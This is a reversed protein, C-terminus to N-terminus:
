KKMSKTKASKVNTSNTPSGIGKPEFCKKVTNHKSLISILETNSAYPHSVSSFWLNQSKSNLQSKTFTLKEFAKELSDFTVGDNLEIMLNAQSLKEDQNSKTTNCAYFSVTVLLAFLIRM